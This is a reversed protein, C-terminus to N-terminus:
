LIHINLVLLGLLLAPLKKFGTSGSVLVMKPALLLCHPASALVTGESETLPVTVPAGIVITVGFPFSGEYSGM